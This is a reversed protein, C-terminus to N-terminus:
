QIRVTSASSFAFSTPIGPYSLITSYTRQASVTVYTGATSGDSCSSNCTASTVGSNDPCGCFQVPAPYATIGTMSTASTVATVISTADFGKVAAYQAGARAADEVQMKYYIGLGFDATSVLMLALSAAFFGFEIAAVARDDSRIQAVWRGLAQMM